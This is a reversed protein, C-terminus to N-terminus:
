NVHLELEPFDLVQHSFLCVNTDKKIPYSELIDQHFQTGQRPHKPPLTIHSEFCKHKYISKSILTAAVVANQLTVCWNYFIPQLVAFLVNSRQVCWCDTRKNM